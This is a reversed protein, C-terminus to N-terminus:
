VDHANIKELVRKKFKFRNSRVNSAQQLAMIGMCYKSFPYPRVAMSKMLQFFPFQRQVRDQKLEAIVLHNMALQKSGSTFQINFDLTLREEADNQAWGLPQFLEYQNIGITIAWYNAM